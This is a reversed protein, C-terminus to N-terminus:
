YQRLSFLYLHMHSLDGLSKKRLHILVAGAATPEPGGRDIRFAIADESVVPDHTECGGDRELNKFSRFRAAHMHIVETAHPMAHIGGM